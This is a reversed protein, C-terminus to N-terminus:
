SGGVPRIMEPRPRRRQREDLYTFGAPVYLKEALARSAATLRVPVGAQDALRVARTLLAAGPRQARDLRRGRRTRAYMNELTWHARDGRCHPILVLGARGDGTRSVLLLRGGVGLRAATFAAAFAAVGVAFVAPLALLWLPGLLAAAAVVAATLFGAAATMPTPRRAATRLYAWTALVAGSLLEALPPRDGAAARQEPTTTTM